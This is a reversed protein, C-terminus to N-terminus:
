KGIKLLKYSITRLTDIHDNLASIRKDESVERTPRIGCEFLRNMLKQAEMTTITFTPRILVPEDHEKMILPEAVYTLRGTGTRNVVLVEVLDNWNGKNLRVELDGNM